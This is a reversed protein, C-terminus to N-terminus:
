IRSRAKLEGAFMSLSSSTPRRSASQHADIGGQCTRDPCQAVRNGVENRRTKGWNHKGTAMAIAEQASIHKHAAAVLYGVECSECSNIHDMYAVRASETGAFRECAILKIVAEPVHSQNM